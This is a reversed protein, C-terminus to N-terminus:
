DRFLKIGAGVGAAPLVYRKTIKAAKNLLPHNDTFRDVANKGIDSTGKKAINTQAEYMLNM